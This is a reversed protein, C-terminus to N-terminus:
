ACSCSQRYGKSSALAGNEQVDEDRARRIGFNDLIDGATGWVLDDFGARWLLSGLSGGRLDKGEGGSWGVESISLASEFILFRERRRGGIGEGM